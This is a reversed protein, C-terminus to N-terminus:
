ALPLNDILRTAGLRVALVAVASDTASAVPALTEADVVEVYDPRALPARAIVEEM